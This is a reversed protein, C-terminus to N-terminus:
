HLHRKVRAKPEQQLWYDAKSQNGGSKCPSLGLGKAEGRPTLTQQLPKEHHSGGRLGKYRPLRYHRQVTIRARFLILCLFVFLRFGFPCKYKSFVAERFGYQRPPPLHLSHSWHRGQITLVFSNQEIQTAPRQELLHIITVAVKPVRISPMKSDNCWFDELTCLGLSMHKNLTALRVPSM